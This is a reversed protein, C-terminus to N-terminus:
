PKAERRSSSRDLYLQLDQERVRWVRGVKIAVLDGRDIIRYVTLPAVKLYEAVEGITLMTQQFM